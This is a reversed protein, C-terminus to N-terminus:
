DRPVSRVSLRLVGYEDENVDLRLNYTTGAFLRELDERSRLVLVHHLFLSSTLKSPGKFSRQLQFVCLHGLCVTPYQALLVGWQVAMVHFVAEQFVCILKCERRSCSFRVDLDVDPPLGKVSVAPLNGLYFLTESKVDMPTASLLPQHQPAAQHPPLLFFSSLFEFDASRLERAACERTGPIQAEAGSLKFPQHRASPSVLTSSHLPSFGLTFSTSISCNHLISELRLAPEAHFSTRSCNSPLRPPLTEICITSAAPLITTKCAFAPTEDHPLRLRLRERIRALRTRSGGRAWRRGNTNGASITVEM